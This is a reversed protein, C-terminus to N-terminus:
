PDGAKIIPTAVETHFSPITTNIPKSTCDPTAALESRMLLMLFNVLRRASRSGSSNLSTFNEWELRKMSLEEAHFDFLKKRKAKTDL